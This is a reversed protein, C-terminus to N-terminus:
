PPGRRAGIRGGLGQELSRRQLRRKSRGHIVRSLIQLACVTNQLVNKRGCVKKMWAVACDHEITNAVLLTSMIPVDRNSKRTNRAQSQGM